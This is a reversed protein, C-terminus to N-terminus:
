KLSKIKNQKLKWGEIDFGYTVYLVYNRNITAYNFYHNDYYFSANVVTRLDLNYNIGVTFNQFGKKYSFGTGVTMGFDVHHLNYNNSNFNTEKSYGTNSNEYKSHAAVLYGLNFGADFLVNYKDNGAYMRYTFPLTLYSFNFQNTISDNYYVAGRQEFRFGFNIGSKKSFKNERNIGIMLGNRGKRKLFANHESLWAHSLGVTIGLYNTRNKRNEIPLEHNKLALQQEAIISEPTIFKEQLGNIYTIYQIENVKIKQTGPENYKKYYLNESDISDLQATFFSGNNLNITANYIISETLLANTFQYTLKFGNQFSIWEVDTKSVPIVEDKKPKKFYVQKDSINLITVPMIQNLVMITDTQANCVAYFVGFCIILLTTIKKM